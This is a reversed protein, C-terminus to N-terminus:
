SLELGFGVNRGCPNRSITARVALTSFDANAMGESLRNGGADVLEIVPPRSFHLGVQETSPHTVVRMGAPASTRVAFDNTTFRAGVTGRILPVFSLQCNACPMPLSVGDFTAVGMVSTTEFSGSSHVVAGGPFADLNEVFGSSSSLVLGSSIIKLLSANLGFGKTRKITIIVEGWGYSTCATASGNTFVVDVDLMADLALLKIKVEGVSANAPIAYSSQGGVAFTFFGGDDTPDAWCSFRRINDYTFGLLPFASSGMFTASSDFRVEFVSESGETTCLESGQLSAVTLAMGGGSITLGPLALLAAAVESVTASVPLASTIHAGLQLSVFGGTTSANARTCRIQQFRNNGSVSLDVTQNRLLFHAQSMVLLVSTTNDDGALRGGSDVLALTPAVPLKAGVVVDLFATGDVQSSSLTGCCLPIAHPNMARESAVVFTHNGGGDSDRVFVSDGVRLVRTLDESTKMNVFKGGTSSEVAAVLTVNGPLVRRVPSQAIVASSAHSNVTMTVTPTSALNSCSRPYQTLRRRITFCSSRRRM